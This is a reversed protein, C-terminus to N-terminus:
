KAVTKLKLTQTKFGDSTVKLKVDGAQKGSRLIVLASGKFLKRTTGTHLENSTIDGNDVAVIRADGEV